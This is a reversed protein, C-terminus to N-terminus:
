FQSLSFTSPSPLFNHSFSLSVKNENYSLLVNLSEAFSSQFTRDLLYYQLSPFMNAVYMYMYM